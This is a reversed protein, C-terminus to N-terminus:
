SYNDTFSVFTHKSEIYMYETKQKNKTGNGNHDIDSIEIMGVCYM